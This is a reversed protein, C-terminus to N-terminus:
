IHGLSPGIEGHEGGPVAAPVGGENALWAVLRAVAARNRCRDDCQPTVTAHDYDVHISAPAAVRNRAKLIVADRHDAEPAGACGICFRTVALEGEIVLAGFRPPAHALLEVRALAAAGHKRQRGVSGYLGVQCCWAPLEGCAADFDLVLVLNAFPEATRGVLTIGHHHAQRLARSGSRRLQPAPQPLCSRLAGIHAVPM